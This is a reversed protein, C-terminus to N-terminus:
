SKSILNIQKEFAIFHAWYNRILSELNESDECFQIKYLTDSLPIIRLNSSAGKLLHGIKQITELDGDEYATLMKKTETHAQDIFDHVFEEILEVPLSLDDAASELQFAFSKPAVDDLQITGFSASKKIYPAISEKEEDDTIKIDDFLEIMDSNQSTNSITEHTLTLRNLTHYFTEIAPIVNNSDTQQIENIANQMIPLHLADSLHSLINIAEKSKETDSNELDLKLSLATDKFEHIFSSYDEISIGIDQSIKESDIIIDSSDKDSFSETKIELTLPVDILEKPTVLIEESKEVSSKILNKDEEMSATAIASLTVLTMDGLMSSLITKHSTFTQHTVNTTVSINSDQLTEFKTDNQAIQLYLDDINKVNCLSLLDHDAAIIQNNQNLIYYM